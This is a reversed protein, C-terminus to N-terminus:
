LALKDLARGLKARVEEVLASLEPGRTAAVTQLPDVAIVVTSEPTQEYVAVNCPLMVGLDPDASLARHALQPNCAGLIKYRRFDVDIKKKLTDKIDVETLIGFGETKLAETLRSLTEAYSHNVIRKLGIDVM